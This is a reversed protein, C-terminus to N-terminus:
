INWAFEGGTAWGMWYMKLKCNTELMGNEECDHSKALGWDVNAEFVNGLGIIATSSVHMMTNQLIGDGIRWEWALISSRRSFAKEVVKCVDLEYLDHCYEAQVDGDDNSAAHLSSPSRGLWGSHSTCTVGLNSVVNANLTNPSMFDIPVEVLAETDLFGFNVHNILGGGAGVLSATPDPSFVAESLDAQVVDGNVVNAVEVERLPSALAGAGVDKTGVLLGGVAGPSFKCLALQGSVVGCDRSLLLFWAVFDLELAKSAEHRVENLLTSVVDCAEVNHNVEVNPVVDLDAVVVVDTVEQLSRGVVVQSAYHKMIDLEVLIRAVSLRTGNTTANDIHLPRDFM